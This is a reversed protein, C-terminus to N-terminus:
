YNFIWNFARISFREGYYTGHKPATRRQHELRSFSSHDRWYIEQLSHYHNCRWYFQRHGSRSATTTWLKLSELHGAFSLQGSGLCVVIWSTLSTFHYFKFLLNFFDVEPPPSTTTSPDTCDALDKLCLIERNAEFLQHSLKSNLVSLIFTSPTVALLALGLVFIIAVTLKPKKM